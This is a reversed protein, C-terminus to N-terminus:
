QFDVVASYPTPSTLTPADITRVSAAGVAVVLVAISVHSAPFSSPVCGSNGAM